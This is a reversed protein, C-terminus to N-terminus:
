IPYESASNEDLFLHLGNTCDEQEDYDFEDPIHLKDKVYLYGPCFISRYLLDPSLLTRDMDYFGIVILKDTRIKNTTYSCGIIFPRIITSNKPIEVKAIVVIRQGANVCEVKKYGILPGSTIHTGAKDGKLLEDLSIAPM